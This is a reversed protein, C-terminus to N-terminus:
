GGLAGDLELAAVPDPYAKLEIVNGGPDRLKAKRQENPTGVDDVRLRHVWDVTAADLRGVVLELDGVALTVGFHRTGTLERSLVQDPREQLTLQLGYFWVDQWGYRRRGLRCGLVEGYFVRAEELDPVPLSLHLIPTM